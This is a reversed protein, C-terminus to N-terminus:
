HWESGVNRTEAQHKEFSFFLVHLRNMFMLYPALLKLSGVECLRFTDVWAGHNM